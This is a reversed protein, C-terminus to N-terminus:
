VDKLDVSIPNLRREHGFSSSRLAGKRTIVALLKTQDFLVWFVKSPIRSVRVVSVNLTTIWDIRVWFVISLARENVPFTLTIQIFTATPHTQSLGVIPVREASPFRNDFTKFSKKKKNNFIFLM